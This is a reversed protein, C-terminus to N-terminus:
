LQSIGHIVNELMADDILKSATPFVQKLTILESLYLFTLFPAMKERRVLTSIRDEMDKRDGVDTEFQQVRSTVMAGIREQFTDVRQRKARKPTLEDTSTM